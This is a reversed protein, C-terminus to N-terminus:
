AVFVPEILDAFIVKYPKHGGRIDKIHKDTLTFVAGHYRVYFTYEYEEFDGLSVLFSHLQEKTLPYVDVILCLITQLWERQLVIGYYNVFLAFDRQESWNRPVKIFLDLRGHEM